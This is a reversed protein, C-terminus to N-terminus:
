KYDLDEVDGYSLRSLASAEPALLVPEFGTPSVLREFARIACLAMAHPSAGDFCITVSPWRRKMTLPWPIARCHGCFRMARPSPTRCGPPRSTWTLDHCPISGPSVRM